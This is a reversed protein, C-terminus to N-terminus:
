NKPKIKGGAFTQKPHTFYYLDLDLFFAKVLALM